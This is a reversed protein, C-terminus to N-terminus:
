CPQGSLTILTHFHGFFFFCVFLFLRLLFSFKALCVDWHLIHRHLTQLPIPLANMQLSCKEYVFPISIYGPPNLQGM